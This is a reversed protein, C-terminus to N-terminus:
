IILSIYYKISSSYYHKLLFGYADISASASVTGRKLFFLQEMNGEVVESRKTQGFKVIVILLYEM